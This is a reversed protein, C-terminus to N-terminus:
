DSLSAKIVRVEGSPLAVQASAYRQYDSGLNGAAQIVTASWPATRRTCSPDCLDRTKHDDTGDSVIGVRVWRPEVGNGASPTVTLKAREQYHDRYAREHRHVCLKGATAQVPIWVSTWESTQPACGGPCIQNTGDSSWTYTTPQLSHGEAPTVIVRARHGSISGTDTVRKQGQACVSGAIAGGLGIVTACNKDFAQWTAAAQAAPVGGVVAATVGLALVATRSKWM